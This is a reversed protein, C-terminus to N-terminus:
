PLYVWKAIDDVSYPQRGNEHRIIAETLAPLRRYVDITEDPGVGLLRAVHSVYSDTDNETKPAWTTLISRVTRLGRDRYKLLQKGIARIGNREHDYVGYGTGDNAVQGNWPVAPPSIYRINGPNKNRIGRPLTSAQVTQSSPLSLTPQRIYSYDFSESLTLGDLLSLPKNPASATTADGSPHPSRARLVFFAGAGLLGILLIAVM